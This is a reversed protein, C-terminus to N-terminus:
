RTRGDTKQAAPNLPDLESPVDIEDPAQPRVGGDRGYARLQFVYALVEAVATYLAAPIEDGLEAHRYLARALPPAELLAVKNEAAIERIKAAVEDAGKAVVKPARMKGETYKLAVAYHTPNTVVVDATPVESMMRRKAMERQMQRIRAKVQPDGDSEKSEQRVEERTMKLKSAYQWLVYPVDILAIVVLGCVISIFGTVLLHGLHASGAALPETSLALMPEIESSIVMWAITGVLLTKGIAKGLEVLARVSFMNGLGSMPNLRGFNPMLSKATFLWGGILMPSGLAVLILLGAFPAMAILVDVASAGLHMLLLDFDFAREREFSLGSVLMSNLRRVMGEGTFLLGLGGALLITCTALERSRPVDGEERAQELKRASAPETKELDSDEAM